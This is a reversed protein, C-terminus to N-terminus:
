AEGVHEGRRGTAALWPRVHGVWGIWEVQDDIGREIARQRLAIEDVRQRRDGGARQGVDTVPQLRDMAPQQPRHPHQPHIRVGGVLFRRADDAVDDAFIVRMAVRRDIIRHHPEGLRERQAIRQDVPLAIEAIDVAIIGCGIAIGLCSQGLDRHVQHYAEVLIGGAETRGVIVLIVLRLQHGAQEGVQEGVTGRADRDAHRGRDRRMIRGLQDVGRDVQDVLGLAIRALQQLIHLAGIERGAADDDVARRRDRFGIGGPAAAKADARAPRDLILAAAGPDGHDALHWVLHGLGLQDLRDGDQDVVLFQRDQGIHAVLAVLLDADHQLRAGARDIRLGQHVAQEPQGVEFRADREVQVHEVLIARRPHHRQLLRQRLPDLMLEIHQAATRLM